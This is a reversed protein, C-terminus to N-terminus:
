YELPKASLKIVVTRLLYLSSYLLICVFLLVPTQTRAVYSTGPVGAYITYITYLSISNFETSTASSSVVGATDGIQLLEAFCRISHLITSSVDIGGKFHSHNREAAKACSCAPFVPKIAEMIFLFIDYPVCFHSAFERAERCAHHLRDRAASLDELKQLWQGWISAKYQNRRRRGSRSWCAFTLKQQHCILVM